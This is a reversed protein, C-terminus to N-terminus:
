RYRSQAVVCCGLCHRPVSENRTGIVFGGERGRQAVVGGVQCGVVPSNTDGKIGSARYVFGVFTYEGQGM